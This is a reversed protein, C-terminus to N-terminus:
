LMVASMINLVFVSVIKANSSAAEEAALIIIGNGIILM